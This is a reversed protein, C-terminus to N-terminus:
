KEQQEMIRQTRVTEIRAISKRIENLRSPRELQGSQQQIRLNLREQRLDQAKNQLEADSMGHIDEIKM